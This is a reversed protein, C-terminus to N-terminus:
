RLNGAKGPTNSEFNMALLSVLEYLQAQAAADLSRLVAIEVVGLLAENLLIPMILVTTPASGGLGSRVMVFRGADVTIVQARREVACQGLLGEGFTITESPSDACAYSGALQLNKGQENTVYVVGQLTGLMDHAEELFVRALDTLGKSRQMRVATTALREKHVASVTQEKAYAELQQSALVQRYKSRLNKLTLSGILLTALGIASGLWLRETNPLTRGLDEMMVLKWDGFPDNWKVEASAVAFRKNEFSTLGANIALPLLSPQTNDFMKGFQKLERIARLHEQSPPSALHGIWEPRNSAFVVGQPSLLLAIDAKGHLLADVRLLGTRAVVSGITESTSINEKYVPAAFYLSRDGRAISVAAYVNDMGQMSMQYYPRFTLNLGTSPKGSNDWSSTAVGNRAVIFVGDANYARAISELTPLVKTNNPPLQGLTERKIEPDILGLVAVAGMLNGNLTQSMIEISRRETETQLHSRREHERMDRLQLSAGWGLLLATLVVLLWALAAREIIFKVIFSM